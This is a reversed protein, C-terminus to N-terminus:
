GESRLGAFLDDEFASGEAPAPTGRMIQFQERAFERDPNAALAFFWSEPDMQTAHARMSAIKAPMAERADIRATIDDDPVGFPLDGESGGDLVAAFPNGGPLDMAGLTEAASRLSSYSVAAAYTKAVQWPEGADPFQEKDGAAAVAAVAVEHARIHDPHGYGGFADYTVVVQPRTERLIAVLQGTQEALDGDAFARPHPNRADAMGSDWWTGAGGLFRADTVGLERMAAALERVRTQGLQEAVADDETAPPTGPEALRNEGREGRTCTVLTVPVGQAAYHTMTAGTTTTEDDPHAHVLLLHLPNGDRDVAPRANPEMMLEWPTPALVSAQACRHPQDHAHDLVDRHASLSRVADL